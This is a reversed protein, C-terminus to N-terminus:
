KTLSAYNISKFFYLIIALLSPIFCLVARCLLLSSFLGHYKYELGDKETLLNDSLYNTSIYSFGILILWIVFVGIPFAINKLEKLSGYIFCFLLLGFVSYIPLFYIIVNKCFATFAPQTQFKAATIPLNPLVNYALGCSVITGIMLFIFGAGFAVIMNSQLLTNAVSLGCFMAAINVIAIFLAMLSANWGFEDFQYASELVLGIGVLCGYSISAIAVFTIKELSNISSNRFLMGFSISILSFLLGVSAFASNRKSWNQLKVIIKQTNNELPIEDALPEPSTKFEFEDSNNERVLKESPEEIKIIKVHATFKYGGNDIPNNRTKRIKEIVGKCGLKTQILSIQKTLGQNEVITDKWIKDEFISSKVLSEANTILLNLIDFQQPTLPIREINNKFVTRNKEDLEFSNGNFTFSYINHQLFM